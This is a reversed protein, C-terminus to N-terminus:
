YWATEFYMEPHPEIGARHREDIWLLLVNTGANAATLSSLGATFRAHPFVTETGTHLTDDVPAAYLEIRGDTPDLTYARHDLWALVGLSVPHALFFPEDRDDVTDFM